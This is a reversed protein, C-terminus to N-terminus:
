RAKAKDAFGKLDGMTVPVDTSAVVKLSPTRMAQSVRPASEGHVLVVVVVRLRM